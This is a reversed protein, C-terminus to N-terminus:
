QYACVVYTAGGQNRLDTHAAAPKVAVNKIGEACAGGQVKAQIYRTMHWGWSKGADEM